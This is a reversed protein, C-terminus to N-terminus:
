ALTESLFPFSDWQSINLSQWDIDFNPFEADTQPWAEPATPRSGASIAGRGAAAEDGMGLASWEFKPGQTTAPGVSFSPSLNFLKSVYHSPGTSKSRSRRTAIATSLSTLIDLYHAAQPSQTSFYALVEKASQFAQEVELSVNEQAFDEVGLVLGAAFVLARCDAM